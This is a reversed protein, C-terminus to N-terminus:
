QGSEPRTKSFRWNILSLMSLFNPEGHCQTAPLPNEKSTECSVFFMRYTKTAPSVPTSIHFHQSSAAARGTRTRRTPLFCFVFAMLFSAVLACLLSGPNQHVVNYDMDDVRKYYYGRLPAAACERPPPDKTIEPNSSKKKRTGLLVRKTSEEGM